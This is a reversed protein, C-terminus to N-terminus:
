AQLQKIKRRGEKRKKEWFIKGRSGNTHSKKEGRKEERHSRSAKDHM